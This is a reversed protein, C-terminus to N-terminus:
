YIAILKFFCSLLCINFIMTILSSIIKFYINFRFFLYYVLNEQFYLNERAKNVTPSCM